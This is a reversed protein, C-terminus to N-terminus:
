DEVAVILNWQYSQISAVRGSMNTGDEQKRRKTEMEDAVHNADYVVAIMPGTDANAATSPSYDFHLQGRGVHWLMTDILRYSGLM